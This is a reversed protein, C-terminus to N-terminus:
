AQAPRWDAPMREGRDFRRYKEATWEREDRWAQFDAETRKALFMLWAAEFGARAEDFTAAAGSTCEGPNSGPYFGCNWQWRPAAGPHGVCQSITGAHVDGYLIRWCEHRHPDRRGTLAIGGIPASPFGSPITFSFAAADIPVGLSICSTLPSSLLRLGSSV